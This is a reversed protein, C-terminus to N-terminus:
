GWWLRQRRPGQMKPLRHLTASNVSRKEWNDWGLISLTKTLTLRTLNTKAHARSLDAEALFTSAQLWITITPQSWRLAMALDSNISERKCSLRKTKLSHSTNRHCWTCIKGSSKSIALRQMKTPFIRSRFRRTLTLHRNGKNKPFIQFLLTKLLQSRLVAQSSPSSRDTLKSGTVRVKRRFRCFKTAIFIEARLLKLTKLRSSRSLWTKTKSNLKCCNLNTGTKLKIALSKIKLKNRENGQSDWSSVYSVTRTLSSSWKERCCSSKTKLFSITLMQIWTEQRQMSNLNKMPPRIQRLNSIHNQIELKLPLLKNSKDSKFWSQCGFLILGSKMRRLSSILTVLCRESKPGRSNMKLGWRTLGPWSDISM